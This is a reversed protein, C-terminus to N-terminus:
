GGCCPRDLGAAVAEGNSRGGFALGGGTGWDVDYPTGLIRSGDSVSFDLTKMPRDLTGVFRDVFHNRLQAQNQFGALGSSEGERVIDADGAALAGLQRHTFATLHDAIHKRHLDHFTGPSSRDLTVTARERLRQELDAHLSQRAIDPRDNM